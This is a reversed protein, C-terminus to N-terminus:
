DSRARGALQHLDRVMGNWSDLGAWGAKDLSGATLGHGRHDPAYVVYGAKNLDRALRDYRQGHEAAGHVVLVVAKPNQTSPVWKRVYVNVGDPSELQFTTVSADDAM